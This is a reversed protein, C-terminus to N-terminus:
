SEKRTLALPLSSSGLQCSPELVSYCCWLPLVWSVALPLVDSAVTVFDDGKLLAGLSHRLAGSAKVVRVQVVQLPDVPAYRASSLGEVPIALARLSCSLLLDASSHRGQKHVSATHIRTRPHEQAPLANRQYRSHLSPSVSGAPRSCSAQDLRPLFLKHAGEPVAVLALRGDAGVRVCEATLDSQVRQQQEDVALLQIGEAELVGSGGSGGCRVTLQVQEGDVLSRARVSTDYLPLQRQAVCFPVSCSSQLGSLGQARIFSVQPTM